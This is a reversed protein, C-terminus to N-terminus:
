HVSSEVKMNWVAAKIHRDVMAAPDEENLVKAIAEVGKDGGLAEKAQAMAIRSVESADGATLSRDSSKERLAAVQSQELSKVVVEAIADLRELADRVKANKAHSILFHFAAAVLAISGAELADMLPGNNVLAAFFHSM